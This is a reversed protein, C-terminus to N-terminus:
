RLRGRERTTWWASYAGIGIQALGVIGSATNGAQFGLVSVAAGLVLFAYAAVLNVVTPRRRERPPASM